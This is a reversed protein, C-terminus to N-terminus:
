EVLPSSTWGCKNCGFTIVDTGCYQCKRLCKGTKISYEVLHKEQAAMVLSRNGCLPCKKDKSANFEVAFEESEFYKREERTLKKM